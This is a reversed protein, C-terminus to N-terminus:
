KGSTKLSRMYEALAKADEATMGKAEFGPMYPPKEGKKGKLIVAIHEEDTKAPDFFKEAKATHCAACKTKYIAALEEGSMKSVTPDVNANSNVKTNMVMSNYVMLNANANANADTITEVNINVNANIEVNAADTNINHDANAYNVLTNTDANDPTRLKRMYAALAKAQDATMGKAEFGPMFPPKEGKKGKLIIEVFQEDTQAPDFFKEAKATHCAACKTKYIAAVDDDSNKAIMIQDTRFGVVTMVLGLFIAVVLIKIQNNTM